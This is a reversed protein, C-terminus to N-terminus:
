TTKSKCKGYFRYKVRKCWSDNEIQANGICNKIKLLVSSVNYISMAM